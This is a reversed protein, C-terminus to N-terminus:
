PVVPSTALTVLPRRDIRFPVRDVVRNRFAPVSRRTIPLTPPPSEFLNHLGIRRITSGDILQEGVEQLPLEAHLRHPLRANQEGPRQIAIGGCIGRCVGTAIFSTVFGA